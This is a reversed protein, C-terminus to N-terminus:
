GCLVFLGTSEDMQERKSLLAKRRRMAARCPQIAAAAGRARDAEGGYM